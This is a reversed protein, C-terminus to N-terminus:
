PSSDTTRALEVRSRIGLKAYINRLHADITRTSLVLQEAIERNTQGAAVLEAIERERATLPDVPDAGAQAPRIIRHGLKRLERVTEARQRQAGFRDFEAEAEILTNVAVGRRGDALAHGLVLQARAAFLPADTAIEHAATAAEIAERAQGKALMVRARALDSIAKAWASANRTASEECLALTREAAAVDGCALQIELLDAAAAPRDAPLVAQLEPGFADAMLAVARERNGTAARALAHCWGPEAASHFDTEVTPQGEAHRLAETVDGTALCARTMANTAWLLLRPNGFVSARELGDEAAATAEALRGLEILPAVSEITLLLVIRERGTQKALEAGRTLDAVAAEFHGLVRHARGHMWFAPLRRVLQEATLRELAATSQELRRMADGDGASALALASCSLAGCALGPQEPVEGGIARADDFAESAQAHAEDLESAHLAALALAFRLRVRDLSPEAPLDALVVQLRRRADEYGSIWREQNALEITLALRQDAEAIQLADILTQRASKPDGAAAQADALQTQLRARHESEEHNDPLLRLAASLFRASSAPASALLSTAADNLLAIAEQDGAGAAFEVHHARQALSGGREKLARAARGHAGLRWGPATAEYVANRVVPHRFVFRRPAPAARLLAHVLLEDLADLADLESLDAVAMALDLDFPDGAVAGAELILRANPGLTALEAALAIAVAPPVGGGLKAGPAEPLSSARAVQELYFPNGGTQPYIATAASGILEAAESETLPSLPLSLVDNAGSLALALPEPLEGERSAIAFLVRANPPRRVVAALAEVSPPDSWQVDDIWLVLPRTVALRELLDRLARPTRSRDGVPADADLAPLLEALADPDALGLNKVRRAGLAELHGDLAETWVAYPLDREFESARAGVVTAGSEEACVTLYELLRSKGIGPEGEIVVVAASPRELAGAIVEREAARGVLKSDLSDSM